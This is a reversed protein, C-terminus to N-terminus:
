PQRRGTSTHSTARAPVAARPIALTITTGDTKSARLELRGGCARLISDVLGLDPPEDDRLHEPALLPLDFSTPETGPIEGAGSDTIEVLVEREDRGAVRVDISRNVAGQSRLEASRIAILLAHELGRADARVPLYADGVDLRITIGAERIAYGRFRVIRQVFDAVDIIGDRARTDRHLELLDGLVAFARQLEHQVQGVATRQGPDALDEALLQAIASAGTLPNAMQHAMGHVVSEISRMAAARRRVEADTRVVLARLVDALTDRLGAFQEDRLLAAARAADHILLAGIVGGQARLPMVLVNTGADVGPHASIAFQPELRAPWRCQAGTEALVHLTMGDRDRVAIAAPVDDIVPILARLLANAGERATDAHLLVALLEVEVEAPAYSAAHSQM